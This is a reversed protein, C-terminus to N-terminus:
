LHTTVPSVATSHHQQRASNVQYMTVPLQERVSREIGDGHQDEDSDNYSSSSSAHVGVGDVPTSSTLVSMIMHVAQKLPVSDNSYAMLHFCEYRCSAEM